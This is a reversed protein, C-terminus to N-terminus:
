LEGFRKRQVESIIAQAVAAVSEAPMADACIPSENASGEKEWERLMSVHLAEFGDVAAYKERCVDNCSMCCCAPMSEYKFFERGDKPALEGRRCWELLDELEAVGDVGSSSSRELLACCVGFLLAGDASSFLYLFHHYEPDDAPPHRKNFHALIVTNASFYLSEFPVSSDLDCM